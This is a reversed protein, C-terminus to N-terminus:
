LDQSKQSSDGFKTFIKDGKVRPSMYSVFFCCLFLVAYLCVLLMCVFFCWVFLSVAYLCLFLTCVFFFYVFLFCLFCCAFLLVAYMCLFVMFGIFHSWINITENHLLFCSFINSFIVRYKINM